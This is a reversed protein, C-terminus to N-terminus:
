PAFLFCLVSLSAFPGLPAWHLGFRVGWFIFMAVLGRNGDKLFCFPLSVPVLLSGFPILLSGPPPLFCAWLILMAVVGRNGDKLSWFPLSFPVLPVSLSGFHGWPRGLSARSDARKM